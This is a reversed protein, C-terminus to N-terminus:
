PRTGRRHAPLRPPGPTAWCPLAASGRAIQRHEAACARSIPRTLTLLSSSQWVRVRTALRSQGVRSASALHSPWTLSPSILAGSGGGRRTRWQAYAPRALRPRAVLSGDIVMARRRREEGDSDGDGDRLPPAASLCAAPLPQQCRCAPLAHSSTDARQAPLPQLRRGRPRRPMGAPPRRVLCAARALAAPMPLSSPRAVNTNANAM